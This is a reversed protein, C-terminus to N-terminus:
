PSYLSINSHNNSSYIYNGKYLWLKAVLGCRKFANRLISEDIESPLNDIFVKPVKLNLQAPSQFLAEDELETNLRIHTTETRISACIITTYLSHQGLKKKKTAVTISSLFNTLNEMRNQESFPVIKAVEKKVDNRFHRLESFLMTQDFM